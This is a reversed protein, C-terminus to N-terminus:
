IVISCKNFVVDILKGTCLGKIKITAGPKISQVKSKENEYFSCTVATVPHQGDLFVTSNGSSDVKVDTVTGTVTIIKDVYKQAASTENAEFDAVLVPAEITVQAAAEKIDKPKKNYQYIGYGATAIAIFLIAIGIKKWPKM